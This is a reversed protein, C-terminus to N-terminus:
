RGSASCTATATVCVPLPDLTYIVLGPAPLSLSCMAVTCRSSRICSTGLFTPSTFLMVLRDTCICAHQIPRTQLVRVIMQERGMALVVASGATGTVIVIVIVHATM